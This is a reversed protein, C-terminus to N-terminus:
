ASTAPDPSGRRLHRDLFACARTWSNRAPAGAHQFLDFQHVAGPYAVLECTRGEAAAARALSGAAQVFGPEDGDGQLILLPASLQPALDDAPRLVGYYVVAAQPPTPGAALRLALWGGLSFGMVGVRSGIVEPQARLHALADATVRDLAQARAADDLVAAAKTMPAYQVVLCAFGAEALRRAFAREHASLGWASHLLLVGPARAEARYLWAPVQRGGSAFACPRPLRTSANGLGDLLLGIVGALRHGFNLRVTRPPGPAPARRPPVPDEVAPNEVAPDGVAPGDGAPDEGAPAEVAPDEVAPDAVALRERAVSIAKATFKELDAWDNSPGLNVHGQGPFLGLYHSGGTEFPQDGLIKRGYLLNTESAVCLRLTKEPMKFVTLVYLYKIPSTSQLDTLVLAEYEGFRFRRRPTGGKVAPWYGRSEPM